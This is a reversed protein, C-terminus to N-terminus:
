KFHLHQIIKIQRTIWKIEPSKLGEKKSFEVVKNIFQLQEFSYQVPDPLDISDKFSLFKDIVPSLEERSMTPNKKLWMDIPAEFLFDYLNMNLLYNTLLITSAFRNISKFM